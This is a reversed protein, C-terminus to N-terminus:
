TPRHLIRTAKLDELAADVLQREGPTLVQHRPYIPALRDDMVPRNWGDTTQVFQTVSGPGFVRCFGQFVVDLYSLLIPADSSAAISDQPVSYVAIEAGDIQGTVRDYHVERLDLAAWDDGPVEATLGDIQGDPVPRASLLAFDRSQTSVWERRWGSLTVPRANPYAHTATNVLSGYGFFRATIM